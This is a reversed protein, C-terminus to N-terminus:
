KKPNPVQPMGVVLMRGDTSIGWWNDYNAKNFLTIKDPRIQITANDLEVTMDTIEGTEDM